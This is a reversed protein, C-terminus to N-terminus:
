DDFNGKPGKNQKKQKNFYFICTIAIIGAIAIYCFFKYTINVDSLALNYACYVIIGIVILASLCVTNEPQQLVLQYLLKNIKNM